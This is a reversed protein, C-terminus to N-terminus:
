GKKKSTGISTSLGKGFAEPAAAAVEKKKPKKTEKNSRKQGKAM